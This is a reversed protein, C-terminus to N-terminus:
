HKSHKAKKVQWQLIDQIFPSTLQEIQATSINMVAPNEVLQFWPKPAGFNYSGFVIVATGNFLLEGKDDLQWEDAWDYLSHADNEQLRLCSHSAPYGPLSYQHWGVGQKNEINFNWRLEWEDNFTSITKEAKWNAYFLGTPTKDKKRGMNVPGTYVLTGNAYAAFAQAPYSFYILKSIQEIAPVQLPFPFYFELDGSLDNPIIVTDMKAFNEADTRNISFVLRKNITDAKNQLLWQRANAFYFGVITPQKLLKVPAIEKKVSRYNCATFFITIFVILIFYIRQM